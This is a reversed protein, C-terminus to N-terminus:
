GVPPFKRDNFGYRTEYTAFSTTSAFALPLRPFSYSPIFPCSPVGEGDLAVVVVVVAWAMLIAALGVVAASAAVVVRLCFCFMSDTVSIVTWLLISVCGEGGAMAVAAVVDVEEM